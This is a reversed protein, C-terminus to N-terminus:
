FNRLWNPGGQIDFCVVNALMKAHSTRRALRPGEWPRYKAQMITSTTNLIFLQSQQSIKSKRSVQVRELSSLSFYGFMPVKVWDNGERKGKVFLSLQQM